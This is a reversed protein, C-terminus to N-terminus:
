GPIVLKFGLGPAYGKKVGFNVIRELLELADQRDQPELDQCSLDTASPYRNPSPRETRERWLPMTPIESLPLSRDQVGKTDPKPGIYESGFGASPGSSLLAGGGQKERRSPAKGDIKEARIRSARAPTMDDQYQRGCPEEVEKGDRRYRIYYLREPKGTAPSIVNYYFIGPYATKIRNLTRM